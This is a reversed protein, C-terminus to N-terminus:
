VQAVIYYAVPETKHQFYGYKWDSVSVTYAGPLLMAIHETTFSVASSWTPDATIDAEPVDIASEHAAANKADSARLTVAGNQVSITVTDSELLAALKSLQVLDAESLTFAVKPEATPLTKSPAPTITSPDSYRYTVRTRGDTIRMRDEGFEIGPTKFASLTGLFRNLDYIPTQVPWAEPLQALALVSKAKAITRQDTGPVLILSNSIGAFNKLLKGTRESVQFTAM